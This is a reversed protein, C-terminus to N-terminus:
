LNVREPTITVGTYDNYQQQKRQHGIFTVLEKMSVKSHNLADIIVMSEQVSFSLAPLLEHLNVQDDLGFSPIANPVAAAEM